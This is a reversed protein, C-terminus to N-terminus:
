KVLYKKGNIIYMGEPLNNLSDSGKGVIEGNISYIINLYEVKQGKKEADAIIEKIENADVESEFDENFAMNIGKVAGDPAEVSLDMNEEVGSLAAGNPIVIAAYQSWRGSTRNEDPAVERYYRPYQGTARGLFYARYPIWVLYDKMGNLWTAHESDYTTKAQNYEELDELYAERASAETWTNWRNWATQWKAHDSLYKEYAAKRTPYSQANAYWTNYNNLANIYNSCKTKFATADSISMAQKNDYNLYENDKLFNNLVSYGGNTFWYYNENAYGTFTKMDSCNAIAEGWTTNEHNSNDYYINAKTNAFTQFVLPYTSLDDNPNSVPNLNPDEGPDGPNTPEQPEDGRTMYESEIPKEVTMQPEPHQAVYADGASSYERWNGKFTYTQGKYDPYAVQSFNGKTFINTGTVYTINEPKPGTYAAGGLDITRAENEYLADRDEESIWTIGSFHCRVKPSGFKVGTNPHIMYPHGAQALYGEIYKIDGSADGNAAFTKTKYTGGNQGVQVHKYEVSTDVTGSEVDTVKYYVNYDYTGDKVRVVNGTLGGAGDRKRVYVVGDTDKYVTEAVNNFHLVLERTGNDKDEKVEVASFDVINFNETFAAALQEDTLDFPFCMTYWVDDYEKEFVETETNPDYEKMLVFQAWGDSSYKGGGSTGAIDAGPIDGRLNEVNAAVNAQSPIRVGDKSIFDYQLSIEARVKQALEKPFHLAAIRNSHSFLYDAIEDWTMNVYGPDTGPVSNNGYEENIGFTCNNDTWGTGATWIEPIKAPDKTTLYVDKLATLSFAAKGIKEVNEPITISSLAHCDYFCGDGIYKLTEPLRISELHQSNRFCDAGLSTIGEPLVIHKMQSNQGENFASNGIVCDSVGPVFDVEEINDSNYFAGGCIEKIGNGITVKKINCGSACDYGIRTINNPIVLEEIVYETETVDADPYALVYNGNNQGNGGFGSLCLDPLDTIETPLNIKVADRAYSSFYYFANTTYPYVPYIEEDLCFPDNNAFYPHIGSFNGSKTQITVEEFDAGTFDWVAPTGGFINGNDVLDKDGYDGSMTIYKLNKLEDTLNLSSRSANFGNAKFSQIVIKKASEGVADTSVAVELNPNNSNLGSMSSVNDFNSPLRLYKLNSMAIGSVGSTNEITANKLDLTTYDGWAEETTSNLVALDLDSLPGSIDLTTRSSSRLYGKETESLSNYWDALAGPRTTVIIQKDAGGDSLTIGDGSGNYAWTGVSVTLLVLFTLLKKM